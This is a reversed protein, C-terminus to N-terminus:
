LPPLGINQEMFWQIIARQLSIADEFADPQFVPGALTAVLGPRLIMPSGSGLCYRTNFIAIPIIPVGTEKSLRFAGPEFPQLVQDSKNTKGEPFIVLSGGSCLYNKMDTMARLRSETNRRDVPLTIWRCLHGFVPARTLEVKALPLAFRNLMLYLAPTDLLSNHNAVLIVPGQPWNKQAAISGRHVFWIGFTYFSSAWFKMCWLKLLESRRKGLALHALGVLPFVAVMALGFIFFGTYLYTKQILRKM